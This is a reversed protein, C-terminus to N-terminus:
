GPIQIIWTRILRSGGTNRAAFQKKLRSALGKVLIRSRCWSKNTPWVDQGKEQECTIQLSRLLHMKTHQHSFSHLVKFSSVARVEGMRNWHDRGITASFPTLARELNNRHKARGFFNTMLSKLLITVFASSTAVPFIDSIIPAIVRNNCFSFRSIALRNQAESHFCIRNAREILFKSHTKVNKHM